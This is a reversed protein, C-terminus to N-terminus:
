KILLLELYIECMVDYKSETTSLIVEKQSKLRWCISSRCLYIVLRTISRRSDEDGAYDLNSYGEIYMLNIGYMKPKM